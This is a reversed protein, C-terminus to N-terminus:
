ISLARDFNACSTAAGQRGLQDKLEQAFVQHESCDIAAAQTMRADELNCELTLIHMDLVSIASAVLEREQKRRNAQMTCEEAAAHCGGMQELIAQRLQEGIDKVLQMEHSTQEARARRIDALLTEADFLSTSAYYDVPNATRIPTKFEISFCAFSETSSSDKLPDLAKRQKPSAPLIVTNLTQKNAWM